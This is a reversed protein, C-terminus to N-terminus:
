KAIKHGCYGCFPTNEKSEKGCNPCRMAEEVVKNGCHVCYKKDPHIAEGCKGCYKASKLVKEQNTKNNLEVLEKIYKRDKEQQEMQDRRMEEHSTGYTKLIYKEKYAKEVLKKVDEPIYIDAINFECLEVGYDSFKPVLDFKIGLTIRRMETWIEYYTIKEKIMVNALSDKIYTLMIDKFFSQLHSTTYSKNIGGLKEIFKRANNIRIVFSGNMGLTVPINLMPDFLDMKNPTGWLISLTSTVNVYAYKTYYQEIKKRQFIGKKEKEIPRHAGPLLSDLMAGGKLFIVNHTHPVYIVTNEDAIESPHYWVLDQSENFKIEQLQQQKSM